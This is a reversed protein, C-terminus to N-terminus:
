EPLIISGSKDFKVGSHRVLEKLKDVTKHSATGHSEFLSLTPRSIGVLDCVDDHKMDRWMRWAKFQRPTM